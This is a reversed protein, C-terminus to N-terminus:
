YNANDYIRIQCSYDEKWDERHKQFSYVQKFLKLM